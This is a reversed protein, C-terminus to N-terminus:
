RRLEGRDARFGSQRVVARAQDYTAIAAKINQNSIDVQRELQDLDDDAFIKWWAGREIADAPASPKWDGLEKYASVAEIDPRRYNPGVACASVLAFAFGLSLARLPRM